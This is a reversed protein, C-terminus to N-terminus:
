DLIVENQSIVRAFFKNKEFLTVNQSELHSHIKPTVIWGPIRRGGEMERKRRRLKRRWGHRGAPFVCVLPWHEKLPWQKRETGTTAGNTIWSSTLFDESPLSWTIAQLHTAFLETNIDPNRTKAATAWSPSSSSPSSLLFFFVMRSSFYHKGGRQRVIPLEAWYSLKEEKPIFILWPAFM